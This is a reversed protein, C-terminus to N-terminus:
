GGVYGIVDSGGQTGATNWYMPREAVFPSSAQVVMAVEYGYFGDGPHYLHQIVTGTVDVTARSHAGVSLTFVFTTGKANVLGITIVEASGTPNQITLWEDYGINVYGEAFSYNNM